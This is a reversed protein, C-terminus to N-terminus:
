VRAGPFRLPRGSDIVAVAMCLFMSCATATRGMVTRDDGGEDVMVTAQMDM